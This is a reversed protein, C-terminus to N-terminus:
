PAPDGPRSTRRTIRDAHLTQTVRAAKPNRSLHARYLGIKFYVEHASMTQRRESLVRRGDIDIDIAGDSKSWVVHMAVDHWRGRLKDTPILLSRKEVFQSELMLGDPELSFLLAPREDEQHFQAIFERAPWVSEFDDPLHFSWEYWREDGQHEHERSKLEVRERDEACDEPVCDGPRVTFRIATRGDRRPEDITVVADARAGEEKSRVLTWGEVDEPAPTFAALCILLAFVSSARGSSGRLGTSM